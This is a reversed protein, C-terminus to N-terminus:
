ERSELEAADVKVVGGFRAVIDFEYTLEECFVHRGPTKRLLLYEEM